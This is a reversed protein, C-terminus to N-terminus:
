PCTLFANTDQLPLFAQGPPNTYHKEQSTLTDIVTLHTEVNTLGTAFVWYTQSLACGDLVKVVAEVNSSQFFWFYASDSSLVVPHGPGVQGDSTRWTMSVQFRGNNLCLTDPGGGCADFTTATAVNSYASDGAANRAKVRFDYATDAALGPVNASTIDTGVFGIDAFVGGVRREVRFSTENDSNDQWALHVESSSTPTAVLDTPAAPAQAASLTTASATNSYPSDGSGNRARVRFDYPTARLLGSVIAVYANVGATAVEAFAAAGTRAEIRFSTENSANDIWTLQVQSSSLANANLYTPAAPPGPPPGGSGYLTAIGAKEDAGLAAGIPPSHLTPNMLSGAANTHGLGLTHGLEHAFLEAALTSGNPGAFLSDINDQTVVFVNQIPHYSTSNFSQLSCSFCPGGIAVTGSGSFSGSIENHPDDFYITNGCSSSIASTGGWVYSVNSGPDATWAALATQIQGFGGGALGPQGGSNASIAVSAPFGFWRTAHNGDGCGPSGETLLTFAEVQTQLASSLPRLYDAARARGAARDEVWATFGAWDRPRESAAGLPAIERAAGLNRMAYFRGGSAVRRFAGFILQTVGWTGDSRPQLFLLARDGPVLPQIGEIRVREGSPSPGGLQRVVLTAGAQGKLVRLVRIEIDTTPPAAIPAGSVRVVRGEVVLPSQDLLAQDSMMVYTTAGAPATLVAAIATSVLLWSLAARSAKKM